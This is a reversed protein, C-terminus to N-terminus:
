NTLKAIKKIKKDMKNGFTNWYDIIHQEREGYKIMRNIIALVSNSVSGLVSGHQKVPKGTVISYAGNVKNGMTENDVIHIHPDDQYPDPGWCMIAYKNNYYSFFEADSILIEKGQYEKYKKVYHEYNDIIPIRKHKKQKM